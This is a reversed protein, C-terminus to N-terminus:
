KPHDNVNTMMEDAPLFDGPFHNWHYQKETGKDNYSHHLM